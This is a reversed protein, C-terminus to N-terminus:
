ILPVRFAQGKTQAFIEAPFLSDLDPWFYNQM